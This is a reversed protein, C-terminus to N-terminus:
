PIPVAPRLGGLLIGALAKVVGPGTFGEESVDIVDYPKLLVDPKQNKKIAAFDVKLIEQNISGPIQRYIKVESLKAEKRAGGVMGLARSLTLDERIAISGPSVVSGTVYVPEAETVLILDGPRIFPNTTGKLLDAIKVIELPIATGNIPLGEVEQGVDPCMVPETHLIQITGAARETFGGSAAILENLKFRRLVPVKASQRVAGSISAPPRSNRELVMVSVYPEKILQKYATALDQQLQRETRCKAKVPEIFPLSSVYGDADVQVRRTPSTMQDVTVEVVDGPGLLYPQPQVDTNAPKAKPATPRPQQAQASLLCFAVAISLCFLRRINM